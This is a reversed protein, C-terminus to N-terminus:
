SRGTGPGSEPISLHSPLGAEQVANRKVEGLGNWVTAGISFLFFASLLAAEFLYGFASVFVFGLASKVFAGIAAVKLPYAPRGLALLLPRNWHFINAFGYGVLLILFAPYAPGYEAGYLFPILWWGLAGIFGGATVTWAASILSVRKLLRHTQLWQRQSITKSIEAYTTAIFPEIPMLVLNIVSQAIKFYGAEVPSRLFTILLTESDRAILNVTGQLNTSIAFRGLERWGPLLSLPARWWGTGLLRGVQRVALISLALGAFTKGVLYAVLVAMMGGQGLFAFLILGATILSQFFNVLAIKKFLRNVQLIGTSTEFFANSLLILGYLIFLPQTAPDKALYQAALPTLGLLVLYGVVATAAEVLAAGKIIAAARDNKGQVLFQGMYKVVLESMRFSLFRHVNSVFPIVTASLIGFREIGLLRAALIGQFISLVMAASNSSFLYGSNKVIGRLLKDQWWSRLTHLATEKAIDNGPKGV